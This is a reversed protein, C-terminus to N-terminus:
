TVVALRRSMPRTPMSMIAPGLSITTRASSETGASQSAASRRGLGLVIRQGGADQDGVVGGLGRGHV